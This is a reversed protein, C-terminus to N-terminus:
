RKRAWTSYGLQRERGELQAGRIGAFIFFFALLIVGALLIWFLIWTPSRSHDLSFHLRANIGSLAVLPITVILAPFARAVRLQWRGSPPQVPQGSWESKTVYRCEPQTADL